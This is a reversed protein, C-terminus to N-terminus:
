GLNQLSQGIPVPKDAPHQLRSTFPADAQVPHILLETSTTSATSPELGKQPTEAAPDTYQKEHNHNPKVHTTPLSPVTASHKGVPARAFTMRMRIGFGAM